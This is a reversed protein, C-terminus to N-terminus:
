ARSVDPNGLFVDPDIAPLREAPSHQAPSCKQIKICGHILILRPPLPILQGLYAWGGGKERERERDIWRESKEKVRKEKGRRNRM